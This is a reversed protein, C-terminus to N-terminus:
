PPPAAMLRRLRVLSLIFRLHRGSLAGSLARVTWGQSRRGFLQLASLHGFAAADDGVGVSPLSVTQKMRHRVSKAMRAGILTVRDQPGYRRLM